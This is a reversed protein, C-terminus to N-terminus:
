PAIGRRGARPRSRLWAYLGIALTLTLAAIVQSTSLLSPSNPDIGLARNLGPTTLEVLYRRAPDGRFLEIAGRLLAYAALYVALIQGTFRKRRELLTLGVFLALEAFAEYLQTPHLPPTANAAQPLLGRAVLDQFALSEPPFHAGLSSTTERGWCCGAFWCGLRGLFHGLALSPVLRDAAALFSMGKRRTYWWAALAAGAIGGYFVLGGEWVRFARLCGSWGGLECATRFEDLNTVVYLLRAGVLAAVLVYFCLDRIWEADEGARRAARTATLVGAVFGAAIFVGYLRLSFDHAGIRLQFLVPHM